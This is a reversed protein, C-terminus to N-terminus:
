TNNIISTIAFIYTGNGRLHSASPKCYTSQWALHPRIGVCFILISGVYSLNDIASPTMLAGCYTGYGYHAM